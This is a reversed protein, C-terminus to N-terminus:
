KNLLTVDKNMLPKPCRIFYYFFCWKPIIISPDRFTM